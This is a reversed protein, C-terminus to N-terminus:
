QSAGIELQDGIKTGSQSITHTPLEVVSRTDFRIKTLRFPKLNEYLDVVRKRSDLFIVDIAYKMGFTHVGNSPRIWLGEGARLPPHGLLGRMRTWATDAVRIQEALLRGSTANRLRM